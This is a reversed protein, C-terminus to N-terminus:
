LLVEQALRQKAIECYKEEIEIGIFKRGLNKAAVATTGSGLFPDLFPDLITDGLEAFKICINLLEIPKEAIHTKGSRSTVPSLKLVNQPANANERNWSGATGWVIYEASSSFGGRQMRIGPKWWTAIGRWIWGGCQIADTTTPLQRWDTFMLCLAGTHSKRICQSLWLSCWALYSRQDKNDGSFDPPKNIVDSEVYKSITNQIRDGRYMGGSSYPPDTLVLDVSNGPLLPLIELCDGCYIVGAPEEYYTYDELKM